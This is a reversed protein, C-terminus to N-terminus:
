IIHLSTKRQGTRGGHYLLFPLRSSMVARDVHPVWVKMALHARAGLRRVYFAGIWVRGGAM